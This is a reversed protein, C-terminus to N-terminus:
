RLVQQIMSAANRQILCSTTPFRLRRLCTLQLRIMQLRILITGSVGFMLKPVLSFVSIALRPSFAQAYFNYNAKSWVM